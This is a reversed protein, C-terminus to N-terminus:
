HDSIKSHAGDRPSVLYSLLEKKFFLVLFCKNHHRVGGSLGRCRCLLKKSRKKLFSPREEQRPSLISIANKFSGSGARPTGSAM